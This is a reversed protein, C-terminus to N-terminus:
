GMYENVMEYMRGSSNGKESERDQEAKEETEGVRLALVSKGM